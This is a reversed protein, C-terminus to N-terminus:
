EDAGAPFGALADAEIPIMETVPQAVMAAVQEAGGDRAVTQLEAARSDLWDARRTLRFTLTPPSAAPGSGGVGLLHPALGYTTREHGNLEALLRDTVAQRGAAVERLRGARAALDAARADLVARRAMDLRDGAASLARGAVEQAARLRVLDDALRGVADPEDVAEVGARAQTEAVEAAAADVAQRRAEVDAQWRALTAEAEALAAAADRMRVAGVTATV